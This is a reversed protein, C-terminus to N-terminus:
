AISALAAALSPSEERQGTAEDVKELDVGLQGLTHRFVAGAEENNIWGNNVAADLSMSLKTTADSIRGTDV